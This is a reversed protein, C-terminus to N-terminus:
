VLVDDGETFQNRRRYDEEFQKLRASKIHGLRLSNIVSDNAEELRDHAAMILRSSAVVALVVTLLAPFPASETYLRNSLIVAVFLLPLVMAARFDSETKNKDYKEYIKDREAHLQVALLDIDGLVSLVAAERIRPYLQHDRIMSGPLYEWKDSPNKLMADDPSLARLIELPTWGKNDVAEQFLDELFYHLRLTSQSSRPAFGSPLTGRHTFITKLFGLTNKRSWRTKRMTRRMIFVFMTIDQLSLVLGLVYGVFAVLGLTAPGGLFTVLRHINGALSGGPGASAVENAFILWLGFLIILGSTLPAKLDRLGDLLNIVDGGAFPL